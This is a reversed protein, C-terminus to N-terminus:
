TLPSYLWMGGIDDQAEYLDVEAQGYLHRLALLGGPGGGIICVKKAQM